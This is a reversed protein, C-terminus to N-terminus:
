DVHVVVVSASSDAVVRIPMELQKKGDSSLIMKYNAGPTLEPMGATWAFRRDFVPLQFSAEGKDNLFAVDSINAAKQGVMVLSPHAGVNTLELVGRMVLGGAVSTTSATAVREPCAQKDKALIQGGEVAYDNRNFTVKGGKVTVETCSGYHMFKVTADAALTVSSGKFVETYGSLAPETTGGIDEILAVGPSAYALAPLFALAVAVGIIRGSNVMRLVGKTIFLSM